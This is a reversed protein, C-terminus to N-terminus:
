TKALAIMGCHAHSTQTFYMNTHTLACSRRTRVKQVDEPDDSRVGVALPVCDHTNNVLSFGHYQFYIYNPQGYNEFVQEGKKFAWPAYTVANDGQLMSGRWLVRRQCACESPSPLLLSPPVSPDVKLDLTTSHVRTPDPGEACNILDLLPVLHREGGWWISRSDLTAHAWRYNEFSLVEPDLQQLSLLDRAVANTFYV